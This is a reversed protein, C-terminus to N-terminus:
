TRDRVPKYIGHECASWIVSDVTAVRDGTCEALRKCMSKVTEGTEAAVRELWRDSKACDVGLNKALHCKTKGGIWDLSRCWAVIEDDTKLTYYKSFHRERDQWFADIASAKQRHGFVSTAPSGVCRAARIKEVIVIAVSEEYRLQLRRVYVQAM